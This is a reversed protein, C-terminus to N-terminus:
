TPRDGTLSPTEAVTLWVPLGVDAKRIQRNLRIPGVVPSSGDLEAVKAFDAVAQRTQAFKRADAQPTDILHIVVAAAVTDEPAAAVTGALASFLQYRLGAIRPDDDVRKGLISDLLGDVRLDLNTNEDRATRARAADYKGSIVDDLSENVKGEVGVVVGGEATEGFALVDHNRAGGDYDDFQIWAEAIAQTIVLDPLVPHLAAQVATAGTGALWLRALELASFGEAWKGKTSALEEWDHLDRIDPGARVSSHRDVGV